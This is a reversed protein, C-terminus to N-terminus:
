NGIKVKSTKGSVLFDAANASKVLSGNTGAGVFPTSSGVSINSAQAGNKLAFTLGGVNVCSLSGCLTNNISLRNGTGQFTALPGGWSFTGGSSVMGFAGLNAVSGNALTMLSGIGGFYGSVVNVLARSVNLTSGDLRVIPGSGTFRSANVRLFDTGVNMTSGQSLAVIPATADLLATDLRLVANTDITANSAEVFIGSHTLPRDTGVAFGLDADMATNVGGLDFIGLLSGLAYHGGQLQVLPGLSSSIIQGGQLASALAFVATLDSDTARLLGGGLRATGGCCVMLLSDFTRTAGRVRLLPRSRTLVGDKVFFLPPDQNVVIADGIMASDQGEDSVDEVTFQLTATGPAVDPLQRSVEGLDTVGNEAEMSFGPISVEQDIPSWGEESHITNVNTSFVTHVVGNKDTLTIKFRDNFPNEPGDATFEPFEKTLLFGRAIVTPISTITIAQKVSSREKVEPDNLDNVPVAGAGTHIIGFHTGEPPTLPGFSELVRGAGNLTWGQLGNEFGGNQITTPPPTTGGGLNQNGGPNLPPNPDPPPPPPCCNGGLVTNLVTTSFSVMQGVIQGNTGGQFQQGRPRLGALIQLLQNPPTPSTGARTSGFASFTFGTGVAFPNGLPNGNSDLHQADVLGQLIFANTLIGGPQAQTSASAQVVEVVLVTGRVALVANPTRIDIVEGPRMRDHAVTVGIKGSDIEVTSRGPVETIRLSSRERVTVVAKGGLLLRAFSQDGTTVRDQLFVDDKFKLALPQITRRAVTVNGEVTTAVGVKEQAPAIAPALMLSLFAALSWAITRTM